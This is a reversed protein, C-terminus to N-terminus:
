IPSQTPAMKTARRPGGAALESEMLQRVSDEVTAEALYGIVLGVVGLAAMWGLALVVSAEFGYGNKLGRVLTVSMGVLAMIAAYKRAM